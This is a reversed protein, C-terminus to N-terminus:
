KGPGNAAVPYMRMSENIVKSLYPFNKLDDYDPILKDKLVSDVEQVARNYCEKYKTLCYLIWGIALYLTLYIFLIFFHYIKLYM